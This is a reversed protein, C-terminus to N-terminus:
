NISHASGRKSFGVGCSRPPTGFISSGRTLTHLAGVKLLSRLLMNQLLVESESDGDLRERDGPYQPVKGMIFM